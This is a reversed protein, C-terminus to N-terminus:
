ENQTKKIRKSNFNSKLNENVNLMFNQKELYGNKRNFEM